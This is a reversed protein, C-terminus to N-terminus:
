YHCLGYWDNNGVQKRIRRLKCFCAALRKKSIDIVPTKFIGDKSFEFRLIQPTCVTLRLCAGNSNFLFSLGQKTFSDLNETQEPNGADAQFAPKNQVTNIYNDNISGQGILRIGTFLFLILLLCRFSPKLLVNKKM